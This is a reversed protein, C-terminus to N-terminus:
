LYIFDRGKPYIVKKLKYGKEVVTYTISKKDKIVTSNNNLEEGVLQLPPKNIKDKKIFVVYPLQIEDYFVTFRTTDWSFPNEEKRHLLFQEKLEEETSIDVCNYIERLLNEFSLDFQPLIKMKGRSIKSLEEDGEDKLISLFLNNFAFQKSKPNWNIGTIFLSIISKGENWLQIELGNFHLSVTLSYKTKNIYEFSLWEGQNVPIWKAKKLSIFEGFSEFTMKTPEYGRVPNKKEWENFKDKLDSLFDRVWDKLFDGHPLLAVPFTINTM